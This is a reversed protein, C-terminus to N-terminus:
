QVLTAVAVFTRGGKLFATEGSPALDAYNDRIVQLPAANIAGGFTTGWLTLRTARVLREVQKTVVAEDDGVQFWVVELLHTGDQLTPGAELDYNTDRAILLCGPYNTLQARETEHIEAPSPTTVGDNKETDLAALNQAFTSGNAGASASALLLAIQHKVDEIDGLM